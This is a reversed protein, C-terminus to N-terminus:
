TKQFPATMDTPAPSTHLPTPVGDPPHHAATAARGAKEGRARFLHNGHCRGVLLFPKLPIVPIEVFAAVFIPIRSASYNRGESPSRLGNLRRALALSFLYPYRKLGQRAGCAM